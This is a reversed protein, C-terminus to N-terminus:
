FKKRFCKNYCNLNCKFNFYHLCKIALLKLLLQILSCSQSTKDGYEFSDIYDISCFNRHTVFYSLNLNFIKLYENYIFIM